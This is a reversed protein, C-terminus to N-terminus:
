RSIREHKKLTAKRLQVLTVISFVLEYFSFLGILIPIMYGGYFSALGMLINLVM